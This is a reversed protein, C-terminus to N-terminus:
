KAINIKSFMLNLDYTFFRREQAHDAWFRVNYSKWDFDDMATFRRLLSRIKSHVKYSFPLKTQNKEGYLFERANTKIESM